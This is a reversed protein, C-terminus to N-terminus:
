KRTKMRGNGRKWGKGREKEREKERERGSTQLLLTALFTVFSVQVYHHLHVLLVVELGVLFCVENVKIFDLSPSCHDSHGCACVCVCVCVCM